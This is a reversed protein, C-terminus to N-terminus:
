PSLCYIHSTWKQKVDHIMVKRMDEFHQSVEEINDNICEVINDLAPELDFDSAQDANDKFCELFNVLEISTEIRGYHCISSLDRLDKDSINLIKYKYNVLITGLIIDDIDKYKIVDFINDEDIYSQSFFHSISHFCGMNTHQNKPYFSSLVIEIGDDIQTLHDIINIDIVENLVIYKSM